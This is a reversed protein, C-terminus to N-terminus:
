ILVQRINLTGTATTAATGEIRNEADGESGEELNATNVGKGANVRKAMWWLLLILLIAGIILMWNRRTM